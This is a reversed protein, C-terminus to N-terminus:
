ASQRIDMKSTVDMDGSEFLLGLSASTKHWPYPPSASRSHTPAYTRPTNEQGKTKELVPVSILFLSTILILRGQM